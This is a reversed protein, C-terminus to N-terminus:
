ASKWGYKLSPHGCKPCKWIDTEFVAIKSKASNQYCIPCKYNYTEEHSEKTPIATDAKKDGGTINKLNINNLEKKEM